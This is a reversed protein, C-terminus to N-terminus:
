NENKYYISKFIVRRQILQTNYSADKWMLPYGIVEIIRINVTINALHNNKSNKFKLLHETKHYVYEGENNEEFKMIVHSSPKQELFLKIYPISNLSRQKFTSSRSKRFMYRWGFRTIEISGLIPSNINKFSNYLVKIRKRILQINNINLEKIIIGKGGTKINLSREICRTLDFKTAPTLKHHLGYSLSKSKITNPHIYAWYVKNQINSVWVLCISQTQRRVENIVSSKLTFGENTEEAYSNGSKVQVHLSKIENAWPHNFSVHLDIKKGDEERSSWSVQCKLAQIFDAAAKSEADNGNLQNHINDEKTIPKKNSFFLSNM